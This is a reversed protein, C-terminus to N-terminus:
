LKARYETPSLRFRKTIDGLISYCHGRNLRINYLFVRCLEYSDPHTASFKVENATILFDTDKPGTTTKVEVFKTRGDAFCLAIDFGAGDGEALATHVVKGALDAHGAALLRRREREMVLREGALGLARTEADTPRRRRLARFVQTTEGEDNLKEAAIPPPDEEELEGASELEGAAVLSESPGAHVAGGLAAPEGEFRLGIRACV